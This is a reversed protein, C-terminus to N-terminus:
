RGTSGYGNRGRATSSLCIVERFLTTVVPMLACQALRDGIHVVYEGGSHNAVILMLEGRFDADVTGPANAIVIGKISLGSRSRIDLFYGAPVEVLWGTSLPRTDGPQLVAEVAVYLDSYASDETGKTPLKADTSLRELKVTSGSNM